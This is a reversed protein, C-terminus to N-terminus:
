HWWYACHEHHAKLKEGVDYYIKDKEIGWIYNFIKYNYFFYSFLYIHYFWKYNLKIFFFCVFFWNKKVKFISDLYKKYNFEEETEGDDLNNKLEQIVSDITEDSYEKNNYLQLMSKLKNLSIKEENQEKSLLKFSHM